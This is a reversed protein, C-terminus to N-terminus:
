RPKLKMSEKNGFSSLEFDKVGVGKLSTSEYTQLVNRNKSWLRCEKSLNGLERIFDLNGCLLTWEKNWLTRHTKSLQMISPLWWKQAMCFPKVVRYVDRTNWRNLGGEGRRFGHCSIIKGRDKEFCVYKSDCLIYGKWM